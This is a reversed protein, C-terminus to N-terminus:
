FAQASDSQFTFEKNLSCCILDAIEEPTKTIDRNLWLSILAYMGTSFFANFLQLTDDDVAKGRYLVTRSGLFQQSLLQSIRIFDPETYNRIFIKVIDKRQYLFECLQTVFEKLNDMHDALTSHQSFTGFQDLAIEQLVDGPTQYHRYFTTRNIQAVQCLESISIESVRRKELLRLLGEKIMRKTITVRQNEKSM